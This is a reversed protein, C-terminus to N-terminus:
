FAVVIGVRKKRAHGVFLQQWTALSLSSIKNQVRVEKDLWWIKKHVCSIQESVTYGRKYM